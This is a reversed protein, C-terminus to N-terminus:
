PYEQLFRAYCTAPNDATATRHKVGDRMGMQYNVSSDTPVDSAVSGDPRRSRSTGAYRPLLSPHLM